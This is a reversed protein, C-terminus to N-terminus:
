LLKAKELISWWEDQDGDPIIGTYGDGLVVRSFFDDFEGLMEGQLDGDRRFWRLEGTDAELALPEYLIQGVILWRKFSGPFDVAPYQKDPYEDVSWVDISGFRGGNAEELFERFSPWHLLKVEPVVIGRSIEGAILGMPEETLVQRAASIRRRLDPTM